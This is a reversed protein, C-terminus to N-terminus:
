ARRRALVGDVVQVTLEDLNRLVISALSFDNDRTFANPVAAVSAGARHAAVVGKHADEVVLCGGPPVGLRTAAAVFADPAPKAHEYDERTVVATFFRRVALHDLVFSVDRQNSNTAIALPFRASLRTLADMVGPMLHVHRRLLDHYVPDKLARLEDPDLSLTYREVAYEPGHGAAIWHAAYEQVSVTVGFRALVTSYASYQLQESDILVGDLDFVVATGGRPRDNAANM